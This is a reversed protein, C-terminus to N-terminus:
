VPYSGAIRIWKTGDGMINVKGDTLIQMYISDSFSGGNYNPFMTVYTPRFNNPLTGLETGGAIVGNYKCNIYVVGNKCRYYAGYTANLTQWGTDEERIAPALEM